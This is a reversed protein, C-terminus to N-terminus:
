GACRGAPRANSRPRSRQREPIRAVIGGVGVPADVVAWKPPPGPMTIIASGNDAVIRRAFAARAAAPTGAPGTIQRDRLARPDIVLPHSPQGLRPLTGTRGSHPPPDAPASGPQHVFSLQRHAVHNHQRAALQRRHHQDIRRDPQHRPASRRDTPRAPNGEDVPQQVAWVVGAPPTQLPQRHRRHATPDGHASRRRAARAASDDRAAPRIQDLGAAASARTHGPSPPHERGDDRHVCIGDAPYPAPAPRRRASSGNAARICASGQRDRRGASGYQPLSIGKAMGIRTLIYRSQVMRQRISPGAKPRGRSRRHGAYPRGDRLCDRTRTTAAGSCISGAPCLLQLRIFRIWCSSCSSIAM